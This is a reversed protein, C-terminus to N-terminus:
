PRAAPTRSALLGPCNVDPAAGGALFPLAGGLSLISSLAGTATQAVIKGRDVGLRPHVLLGSFTIPALVRILDPRKSHGVVRVDLREAGLDMEGTGVLTAVGTDIVAPALNFRGAEVQFGVLGCRLATRGAQSKTILRALDVGAGGALSAM